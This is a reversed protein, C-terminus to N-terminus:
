VAANAQSKGNTQSERWRRVRQAYSERKDCWDNHQAIETARAAVWQRNEASAPANIKQHM